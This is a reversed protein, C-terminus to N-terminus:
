ERKIKKDLEANELLIFEIFGRFNASPYKKAIKEFTIKDMNLKVMLRKEIIKAREEYFNNFINM